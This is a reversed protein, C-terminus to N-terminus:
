PCPGLVLIQHPPLLPAPAQYWSSRCKMFTMPKCFQLGQLYNSGPLLQGISTMGMLGNLASSWRKFNSSVPWKTCPPKGKFTVERKCPMERSLFALIEAKRTKFNSSGHHILALWIPTIMSGELGMDQVTPRAWTSGRKGVPHFHEAPTKCQVMDTEHHLSSDTLICGFSM